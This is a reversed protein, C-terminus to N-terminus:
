TENFIVRESSLSDFINNISTYFKDINYNNRIFDQTKDILTQETKNVLIKEIEKTINDINEITHISTLEKDSIKSNTLVSCGCAACQISLFIDEICVAIKYSSINEIVRYYDYLETVMFTNVFIHKIHSYLGSIASNNSLNFIIINNKDNSTNNIVDFGYPIIYSNNQYDDSSWSNMIDKTFFIKQASNIKKSLIAKDEKKFNEPSMSHFLIIHHTHYEILSEYLKNSFILPNNDILISFPQNDNYIINYKSNNELLLTFLDKNNSLINNNGLINNVINSVAKKSFM